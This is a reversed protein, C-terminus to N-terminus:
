AANRRAVRRAILWCAGGWLLGNATAIAYLILDEHEGFGFPHNLAPLLYLYRAPFSVVLWAPGLWVPAGPSGATDALLQSYYVLAVFLIANTIAVAASLIVRYAVRM